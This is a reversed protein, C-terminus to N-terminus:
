RLGMLLKFWKPAYGMALRYLGYGAWYILPVLLWWIKEASPWWCLVVCMLPMMCILILIHTCYVFFSAEAYHCCRRFISSMFQELLVPLSLIALVILWLCSRVSVLSPYCHCILLSVASIVLVLHVMCPLNRFKELLKPAYTGFILGVVYDGFMYPSPWAMTDDWRNIFLCSVGLVYLVVRWKQLLFSLLTFIMLDRLFWMPTLLPAYGLGLVRLIGGDEWSFCTGSWYVFCWFLYPMMLGKMRGWLWVGDLQALKQANFFGSLLFFLALAPGILWENAGWPGCPVHQMIVILTAILRAVEIYSLRRVKQVEGCVSTNLEKMKLVDVESGLSM